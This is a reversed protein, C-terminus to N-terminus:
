PLLQPPVAAAQEDQRMQALVALCYHTFWLSSFAFVLTYIWIAVPILIPFAAAFFWGSAWVVSPAAGLYGTAIGMLLLWRRHGRFVRRREDESAHDALADFTMVRYTLWGWILPPLLLILPPILWLPISVVLAVVALLMSGFSWLAGRLFSAGHKRELAPFRRRGVLNVLAPTMLLAVFLLVVVVLLPTVAFIILLPALANKLGAMGMDQLWRTFSALWESSELWLFVNNVADDWFFYGLGGAALILLLLPLLSLFIVRPHLCYAVARWFSDLFLSM